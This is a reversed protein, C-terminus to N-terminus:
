IRRSRITLIFESIGFLIFGIIYGFIVDVFYHYHCYVTSISLFITNVVLLWALKRFYRFSILTLTLSVAVHSSPFAGGWHDNMRYIFVMTHTFLGHRYTETLEHAVPDLRGGIVPLIMYILYCSFFVFLLNFLARIFEAEDKKIYIYFPIGFIMLYYSFYAFHFFEQLFFTNYLTGWELYPHHGFILLDYYIFIPDLAEKFIVRDIMTAATFLFGLFVFPYWHRAITVLPNRTYFWVIIVVTMTVLIGFYKAILLLPKPIDAGLVYGVATWVICISVYFIMLWDTIFLKKGFGM